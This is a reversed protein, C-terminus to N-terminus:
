RECRVGTPRLQLARRHHLVRRRAPQVRRFERRLYRTASDLLPEFVPQLDIALRSIVKLVDATATQQQLSKAPRRRAQVEDFLRMNEIAIVAQDAFTQLLQVHHDAFSGPEIRTVSIIGIPVGGNMLPVFLM